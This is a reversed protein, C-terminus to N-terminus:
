TWDVDSAYRMSSASVVSVVIQQKTTNGTSDSVEYEVPYRGPINPDVTGSIKIQTTLNGDEADTAKVVPARYPQGQIVHVNKPMHFVPAANNSTFIADGWVSHDYANGGTGDKTILKITKAGSIPVSIFRGNETGKYLGSNYVMKEDAWVEFSVSAQGVDVSQDVGIMAEFTDFGKNQVDYVVESNAHTGLGKAVTVKVGDRVLTIAKGNPNTDKGFRGWGVKASQEKMDSAHVLKNVVQVAVTCETAGDETAVRYKVSYKGSQETNVNNEVITIRSRIDNGDKDTAYANLLPEFTTGRALTIKAPVSLSPAFREVVVAKGVSLNKGYPTITYKHNKDALIAHDSFNTSTTFGIVKGDRGIEYGLVDDQNHENATWNLSFTNGSEKKSNIAVISSNAIGSGNYDVVSGNLYWIPGNPKPYQAIAKRVDDSFEFIYRDYFEALNLGLIESSYMVLTNQ